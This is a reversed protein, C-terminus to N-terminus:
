DGFQRISVLILGSPRHPFQQAGARAAAIVERQARDSMARYASLLAAEDLTVARGSDAQVQALVQQASLLLGFLATSSNNASAEGIDRLLKAVDIGAVRDTGTTALITSLMSM